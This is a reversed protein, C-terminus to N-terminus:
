DEEATFGSDALRRKRPVEGSLRLLRTNADEGPRAVVLGLRRRVTGPQLEETVVMSLRTPGGKRRCEPFPPQTADGILGSKMSVNLPENSFEGCNTRDVDQEFVQM